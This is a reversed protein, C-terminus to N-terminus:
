REAESLKVAELHFAQALLFAARAEVATRSTEELRDVVALLAYLRRRAAAYEGREIEERAREFVPHQEPDPSVLPTAAASEENPEKAAAVESHGPAQMSAQLSAATRLTILALLGNVLVVAFLTAMMTRNFLPSVRTPVPAPTPDSAQWTSREVRAVTSSVAAPTEAPPDRQPAIAKALTKAEGLNAAQASEEQEQFATFIEDLDTAEDSEESSVLTRDGFNFLDEDPDFAPEKTLTDAIEPVARGWAEPIWAM